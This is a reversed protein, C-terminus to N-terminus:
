LKLNKIFYIILILMFILHTRSSHFIGFGADPKSRVSVAAADPCYEEECLFSYCLGMILLPRRLYNPAGGTGRGRFRQALSRPQRSM